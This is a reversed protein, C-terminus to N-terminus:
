VYEKNFGQPNIVKMEASQLEQQPLPILIRLLRTSLSFHGFGVMSWLNGHPFFGPGDFPSTNLTANYTSPLSSSSAPRLSLSIALITNPHFHQQQLRRQLRFQTNPFSGWHLSQETCFETQGSAPCEKTGKELTQSDVMINVESLETAKDPFWGWFSHKLSKIKKYKRPESFYRSGWNRIRRPDWTLIDKMKALTSSLFPIIM